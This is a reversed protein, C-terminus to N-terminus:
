EHRGESRPVGLPSHHAVHAHRCGICCVGVTVQVILGHFDNPPAIQEGSRSFVTPVVAGRLDSEKRWLEVDLSGNKSHFLVSNNLAPRMKGVISVLSHRTLLLEYHHESRFMQARILVPSLVVAHLGNVAISAAPQMAPCAGQEDVFGCYAGFAPVAGGSEVGRLVYNNAERQFEISVAPRSYIGAREIAKLADPALRLGRLALVQNRSLETM